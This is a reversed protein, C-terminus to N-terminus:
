AASQRSTTSTGETGGRTACGSIWCSHGERDPLAALPKLSENVATTPISDSAEPTCPVDPDTM